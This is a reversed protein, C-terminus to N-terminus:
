RRVVLAELGQQEKLKGAFAQAQKFESFIGIWVAHVTKGDVRKERIYATYGKEKLKDVQRRADAEKSFAGVQVAYSREDSGNEAVTTKRRDEPVFPSQPYDRVLQEVYTRATKYAGVAYSYQALRNLADDAWASKPHENVIRQYLDVAKEAEEECVAELFLVGPKDPHSKRLEPLLARVEDRTGTKVQALLTTLDRSQADARQFAPLILLLSLILRLIRPM